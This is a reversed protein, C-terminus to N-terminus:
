FKGRRGEVLTIRAGQLLEALPSAAALGGAGAGAIVIRAQTKHPQQAQAAPSALTAAASAAGLALLQRRQLSPLPM